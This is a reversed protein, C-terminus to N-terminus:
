PSNGLMPPLILPKISTSAKALLIRRGLLIKALDRAYIALNEILFDDMKCKDFLEM